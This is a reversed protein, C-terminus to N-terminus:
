FRNLKTPPHRNAKALAETEFLELALKQALMNDGRVLNGEPGFCWTWVCHGQDDLEAINMMSARWIRYRRGTEGGVVDFSGDKRYTALQGPSLNDKLLRAGRAVASETYCGLIALFRRWV